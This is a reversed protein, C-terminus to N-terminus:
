STSGELWLQGDQEVVRHAAVDLDAPGRLRAGDRVDFQSGHASCTLVPGDLAGSSLPAGAHPCLDSIACWTGEVRYLAVPGVPTEAFSGILGLRGAADAVGLLPFRRAEGSARQEVLPEISRALAGRTTVLDCGSREAARWLQQDPLRLYGVLLADPWRARLAVAQAISEEDEVPLVVLSPAQAGSDPSASGLPMGLRQLVPALREAVLADSSVLAAWRPAEDPTM